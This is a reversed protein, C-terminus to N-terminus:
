DSKRGGRARKKVRKKARVKVRAKKKAKKKAKKLDKKKEKKKGGGKKKLPPKSDDKKKRASGSTDKKSFSSEDLRSINLPRGCVRVKKLDQFIDKPMGLPLDVLSYETNIEIYGINEGDLGAENAIAGVINGPKVGHEYGVEIRFREKDKDPRTSARGRRPEGRGSRDGRSRSEPAQRAPRKKEPKMLLPQDGLSIQALAAAIEIAPADHEHQYQEVLGQMFALEGTALTDTIRQKFDAIRKNNVTETTPLELLEIKQRTAREIAGLM